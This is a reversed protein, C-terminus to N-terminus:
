GIPVSAPTVNWGRVNVAAATGAPQVGDMTTITVTRSEGPLLSVYNDSYFAPLVREGKADVLTLKAELLPTTGHNTLEVAIGDGSRRATATLAQQPMTSLARYAADDKGQWYVNRSIQHGGRDTLSLEVLVLGQTDLLAQLALPKLTTTQNAPAAVTESRDLLSRGSVDVVQARMTLGDAPERTTNAIAIAYDPLNLQVHVPQLATKVGYFSAQTDYDHSLIQWHNSPWAPQTMWLLRGSDRTWLHANFGEFIARYNVYNFMQAKREFDELSTPEGLQTTLADMFTKVDGNGGIHWDHYALTDSIPWRDAPPVMAQVAELTALSPTGTEVSFGTALDTFYGVPPRYNYPGSNQLGVRNSSGTYYRTGDLTQVLHDLGENVIPQPVGENRGFWLAISPHNRYRAIVDAANKLLLDPNEAENQYDQTSEWFDNLILMGYEDALDYFVDETNQGVWNRIIDINAEKHLRFYPELRARSVRKMYDDMGWNGGRAAIRVGNVYITLHPEPMESPVDRVAPSVAGAPTLSEAWGTPTQKIDLHKLAVLDEGRQHAMTPDIVVRRLQGDPAFLSLGYTMERMGFRRQQRDSVAGDVSATATLTYLNQAGYGNPWWLKPQAVHLQAFDAPAFVVESAGPPASVTRSVSVGEFAATVTTSVPAAGDNSIPVRITVDASDIAPLPLKTVVQPDGVRVSGTSLLEVPQWLGIDRDRVGPIWDWGETAMFSPGDLAMQGGNNGPGRAISEEDPIGPHPPPTIKVAVINHGPVLWPTVDYRGRIFAGEIRGVQRGNVWIQAAYNIGKFLLYQHRGGAQAPLDFGTRYWWDQRSLKEPIALNNLGYGPDPYVGRAVLTTLVTGPVTAAYWHATDFGDRSIAAGDGTVDPAAALKWGGIQWRDEALKTLPATDTPPTAVPASPPTHGTPLTAADQPQFLGRWNKEQWDWGQGPKQFAVLSPDPKTRAADAFAQAPMAQPLVTLGILAGGFHAHGAVVPALALHPAVAPVAMAKAAVLRGDVYLSVTHGDSSAGVLTWRAPAITAPARLMADATRFSLHGDDLGIARRLGAPDGIAAITVEGKAPVDIRVWGSISWVDGTAALQAQGTLAADSGIGGALISIDYPGRGDVLAPDSLTAAQVWGIPATSALLAAIRFLSRGVPSM